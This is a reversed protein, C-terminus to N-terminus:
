TKWLGTRVQWHVGSEMAEAIRHQMRSSRPLDALEVASDPTEYVFRWLDKRANREADSGPKTLTFFDGFRAVNSEEGLWDNLRPDLMWSTCNLKVQKEAPFWHGFTEPFFDLAEKVADECAQPSFRGGEGRIHIGLRYGGMGTEVAFQLRGLQYLSGRVHTSFWFAVDLGPEGYLRRNLRLKEGIDACVLRSQAPGIGHEAHWARMLPLAALIPYLTILAGTPGFHRMPLPWQLLDTGGMDAAIDLYCKEAVTWLDSGPQPRAQAVADADAPDADCFEVLEARLTEASPLPFDGERRTLVQWRRTSEANFGLRAAIDLSQSM